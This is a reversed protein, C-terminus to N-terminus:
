YPGAAKWFSDDLAAATLANQLDIFLLLTRLILQML